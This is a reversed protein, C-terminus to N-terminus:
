ACTACPSAFFTALMESVARFYPSTTQISLEEALKPAFASAHEVIFARYAAQPSGGPLEDFAPSTEVPSAIGAALSALYQLLEMETSIADLPDNTGDPNSLGCKHCFREVEMSYRNVFLLPEVGDEKARWYGEYPSCAPTPSGVFLRTAEARLEHFDSEEVGQAWDAGLEIGLCGWIERAASEWEGNAITDALEETPYRLSFALLECSAARLEWLEQEPRPSQRTEDAAELSSEETLKSM